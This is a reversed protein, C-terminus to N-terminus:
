AFPRKTARLPVRVEAVWAIVDVSPTVQVVWAPTDPISQRENAYPAPSNTATPQSLRLVFLVTIVDGSPAVHVLRLEASSV